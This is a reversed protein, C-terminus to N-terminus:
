VNRLNHETMLLLDRSRELRALDTRLADRREVEAQDGGWEDGTFKPDKLARVEDRLEKLRGRELELREERHRKLAVAAAQKAKRNEDAQRADYEKEWRAWDQKFVGTRQAQLLAESGLSRFYAVWKVPDVTAPDVVQARIRAALQAPSILGPDPIDRHVPSM